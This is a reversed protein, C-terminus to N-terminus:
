LEVEELAIVYGGPNDTLYDLITEPTQDEGDAYNEVLAGLAEEETGYASVTLEDPGDIALAYIKM